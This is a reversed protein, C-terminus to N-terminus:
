LPVCLLIEFIWRTPGAWRKKNDLPYNRTDVVMAKFYVNNTELVERLLTKYGELFRGPRSPIKQWKVRGKLGYEEKKITSSSKLKAFQQMSMPDRKSHLSFREWFLIATHTTARNM